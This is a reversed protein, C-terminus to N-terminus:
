DKKHHGRPGREVVDELREAYIQREADSMLSVRELWRAQLTAQLEASSQAQQQLLLEVALPDFPTAILADSLDQFGQRRGLSGNKHLGFLESRMAKRDDKPLARYLAPGFGPPAKAHDSGKLRLVTGAAIGVILLNLALSIVLVVPVWGRKPKAQESM